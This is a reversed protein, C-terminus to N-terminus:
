WGFKDALEKVWEPLNYESPQYIHLYYTITHYDRNNYTDDEQIRVLIVQQTDLSFEPAKYSGTPTKQDGNESYQSFNSEGLQIDGLIVWGLSKTEDDGAWSHFFSSNKLTALKGFEIPDSCSEIELEVIDLFISEKEVELGEDVLFKVVKATEEENLHLLLNKTLEAKALIDRLNSLTKFAKM